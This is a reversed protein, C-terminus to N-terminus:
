EPFLLWKEILGVITHTLMQAASGAYKLKKLWKLNEFHAFNHYRFILM